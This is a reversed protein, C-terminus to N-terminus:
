TNFSDINTLNCRACRNHVLKQYKKQLIEWDQKNTETWTERSTFALVCCMFISVASFILSSIFFSLFPFQFSVQVSVISCSHSIGLFFSSNMPIIHLEQYIRLDKRCLLHCHDDIPCKTNKNSVTLVWFCLLLLFYNTTNGVIVPCESATSWIHTAGHSLQRGPLKLFTSCNKLKQVPTISAWLCLTQFKQSTM